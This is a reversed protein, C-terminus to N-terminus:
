KIIDPIPVGFVEIESILVWSNRDRPTITIKIGDGWLSKDSKIMFTGLNYDLYFNNPVDDWFGSIMSGLFEYSNKNRVYVRINSPYKITSKKKSLAVVSVDSIPGSKGLEVEIEISDASPGRYFGVWDNFSEVGNMQGIKGDMLKRGDDLYESPQLSPYEYKVASDNIGNYYIGQGLNKAMYGRYVHKAGQVQSDFFDWHNYKTMHASNIWTIVMGDSSNLKAQLLQKNIRTISSLGRWKPNGYHLGARISFLEVDVWMKGRNGVGNRAKELYEAVNYGNLANDLPNEFSGVGDQLLFIDPNNNGDILQSVKSEISDPTIIVSDNEFTKMFGGGISNFYGPSHAKIYQVVPKFFENVKAINHKAFSIEPSIYYGKFCSYTQFRSYLGDILFKTKQVIDNKFTSWNKSNWGIKDEITFLGLYVKMKKHKNKILNLLSDIDRFLVHYDITIQKTIPDESLTGMEQTIITEIGMSDLENLLQDRHSTSNFDSPLLFTGRILTDTQANTISFLTITLFLILKKM